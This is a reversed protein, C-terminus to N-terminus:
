RKGDGATWPADTVRRHTSINGFDATGEHRGLATSDVPAGRMPLMNRDIARTLDPSITQWSDGRDNSRFLYNRPSTCRGPWTGRRFSRRAGTTAIRERRGEGGPRINKTQGTRADYRGINGNQSESYVFNHDTPDAVSYFGDGGALRFWDANSTGFTKRTQNPAGWAQNDQLGGYVNYYPRADDVSIAYFQALPISQVHDWTVGRDWSLYLGGDTGLIQQEPSQPNIWLAHHDAHTGATAYASTRADAM